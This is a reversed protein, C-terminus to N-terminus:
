CLPHVGENQVSAEWYREHQDKARDEESDQYFFANFCTLYWSIFCYWVLADLTQTHTHARMYVYVLTCVSKVGKQPRGHDLSRSGFPPPVVKGHKQDVGISKKLRNKGVYM